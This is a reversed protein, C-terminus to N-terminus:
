TGTPRGGVYDEIEDAFKEIERDFLDPEEIHPAHGSAAFEIRKANPMQGVVWKSAADSYLQSLAGHVVRTPTDIKALGARFDQEAMSMWLRGMSAPDNKETEEIMWDAMARHEDRQGSAFIRPVFIRTFGPWDDVMRRTVGAFVSADQGDRLGFQWDTDNLLKPVMDITVLGAIRAAEQRQMLGWAVMAGMSWGVLLTGELELAVLLEAVDAVLTRLGQSEEVQSSQGHGRLDPALVRFNPSLASVQQDFFKAQMGWGHLLAIPRGSGEDTYRLRGGDKLDLTKM